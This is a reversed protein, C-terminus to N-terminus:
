DGRYYLGEILEVGSMQDRGSVELWGTLGFDTKVLFLDTGPKNVLVEVSYNEPMSAIVESLKETKYLKAPKRTKSKLGVYNFPQDVEDLEENRVKFKKRTNFLNNTHGSVYISGNGPVYLHTGPISFLSREFNGDKFFQFSPDGSAGWSFVVIYDSGSSSIKTKLAKVDNMGPGHDSYYLPDDEPLETRKENFVTTSADNYKIVIEEHESKHVVLEELYDFPENESTQPAAPTKDVPEEVEKEEAVSAQEAPTEQESPVEKDSSSDEESKGPTNCSNFAMAASLCLAFLVNKKM